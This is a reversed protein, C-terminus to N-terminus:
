REEKGQMPLDKTSDGVQSKPGLSTWHGCMPGRELYLVVKNVELQTTSAGQM